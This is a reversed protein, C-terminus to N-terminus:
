IPCLRALPEGGSRHKKPATNGLRLAASISWAVRYVSRRSVTLMLLNSKSKNVKDVHPELPRRAQQM